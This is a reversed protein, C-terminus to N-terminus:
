LEKNANPMHVSCNVNGKVCPYWAADGHSLLNRLAVLCKVAFPCSQMLLLSCGLFLNGNQWLLPATQLMGICPLQPLKKIVLLLLLLLMYM